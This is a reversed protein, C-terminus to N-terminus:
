YVAKLYCENCLPQELPTKHISQFIERKCSNCPGIKLRYLARKAMRNAHRQDPRKSPCPINIKRYFDLEQTTLKFPKDTIECSIIKETINIPTEQITKPLDQGRITEPLTPIPMEYDSWKYGKSLAEEKTIPFQDMALTENYGFACLDIPFFLGWEGTKKMHAIIKKRLNYFESESYEKNLICFKKKKIGACGFLHDSSSCQSCYEANSLNTTCTVCFKCDYINDGCAACQYILEAKFGWSTYDICNKVGSATKACYLCDELDKCDFCQTSNKSNYVHNGIVNENHEGQIAKQPQSVFFKETEEKFKKIHESNNLKLNASLNKYEEQSYQKNFIMFEKRRQNICGICNNCGICNKLFASSHCNECEQSWKLGYINQCDICEYCWESNYCNTCDILKKCHYIRNSYQCDEDYDSESILYCNKLYGTCNTFDSNELTGGVVFVSFHPVRNKLEKFQDFFPRSFDFDMGYDLANWSDGWWLAQNYVPFPQNQHYMSLITKGSLDCKRYYLKRANREQLRRILRCEPCQTPNPLDNTKYYKTERDTIQFQEGCKTCSSM